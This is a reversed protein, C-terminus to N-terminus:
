QPLIKKRCSAPLLFIWRVERHLAEFLRQLPEAISRKLFSKKSISRRRFTWKNTTRLAYNLKIYSKAEINKIRYEENQIRLEANKMRGSAGDSTFIGAFLRLCIGCRGRFAHQIPGMRKSSHSHGSGSCRRHNEVEDQDSTNMSNLASRRNPGGPPVLWEHLVSRMRKAASADSINKSLKKRREPRKSSRLNKLLRPCAAGKDMSIKRKYLACLRRFIFFPFM